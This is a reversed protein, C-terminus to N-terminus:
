ANCTVGAMCGVSEDSSAAPLCTDAPRAHGGLAPTPRPGLHHARQAGGGGGHAHVVARHALPEHRGAVRAHQECCAARWLGVPGGPRAGGRGHLAPQQGGRGGVRQVGAPWVPWALAPRVCLCLRATVAAAPGECDRGGGQRRGVCPRAGMGAPQLGLHGCAQQLPPKWATRYLPAPRILGFCPPKCAAAHMPHCGPGRCRWRAARCSTAMWGDLPWGDLPWGALWGHQPAQTRRPVTGQVAGRAPRGRHQVQCAHAQRGAVDGACRGVQARVCVCWATVRMLWACLLGDHRAVM